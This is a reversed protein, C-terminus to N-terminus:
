RDQDAARGARHGAEHHLAPPDDDAAVDARAEAVGHVVSRDVDRALDLGEPDVAHGALPRIRVRLQDLALEPDVPEARRGLELLEDAALHEVVVVRELRGLALENESGPPPMVSSAGPLFSTRPRLRIKVGSTMLSMWM